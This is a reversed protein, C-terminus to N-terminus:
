FCVCHFLSMSRTHQDNAQKEGGSGGGGCGRNGRQEASRQLFNCNGAEKAEPRPTLLSSQPLFFPSIMSDRGERAAKPVKPLM